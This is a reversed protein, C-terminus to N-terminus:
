SPLARLWDFAIAWVDPSNIIGLHSAGMAMDYKGQATVSINRAGRLAASRSFDHPKGDWDEAPVPPLIGDQRDFYVFSTDSNRIMLYKTPGPTEDRRNLARLLPTRDSGYEQCIASSPAFGGVHQWFNQPDPSCNIIGHNPGDVGVLARVLDYTGETRMWHRALTVGLSHGVIDVREAGTFRLVERVFADLDPENGITSHAYQSRHNQDMLLDCQDGQYGLGWLESPAYGHDAFYQAFAQVDGYAGNCNTPFPTDNNGHLFIVPVRKVKGAAGFGIVPVRLNTDVPVAFGEPFTTGVTGAARAPFAALAVLAVLLLGARRM